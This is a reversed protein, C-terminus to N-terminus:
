KVELYKSLKKTEVDLQWPDCKELYHNIFTDKDTKLTSDDPFDNEYIYQVVYEVFAKNSIYFRQGKSCIIKTIIDFVKRPFKPLDRLLNDEIMFLHIPVNHNIVINHLNDVIWEEDFQNCQYWREFQSLVDKYKSESGKIKLLLWEWLKVFRNIIEQEIIQDPNDKDWMSFGIYNIFEIQKEYNNRENFLLKIIDSNLDFLGRGYCIALFKSVQSDEEKTKENNSYIQNKLVYIFKNKLILFTNNYIQSYNVFTAFTIEFIHRKGLNEPFLNDINNETITPLAYYIWPLMHAFIAYTEIYKPHKFLEDIVTAISDLPKDNNKNWILYLALGEVSKGHLSNIASTLYYGLSNAIKEEEAKKTLYKDETFCLKKLIEFAKNLYEEAFDKLNEKYRFAKSMLDAVAAKANQWDGDGDHFKSTNEFVKNQEIVWQSFEIVNKWQENSITKADRLGSLIYHIYTPEEIVKLKELGNLYKDPNSISDNRLNEALGIKHSNIDDSKWSNVFEVIEKITKESLEDTDIPSSILGTEMWFLMDPHNSYEIEEGKENYLITRYKDILYQSLYEKIPTLKHLRWINKKKESTLDLSDQEYYEGTPGKDIYELIIKQANVPLLDFKEQLLLYYEHHYIGSDFISKNTLYKILLDKNYKDSVRLLYLIVRIMTPSNSNELLTFIHQIINADDNNILEFSIDRIESVLIYLPENKKYADQSHKEIASRHIHETEYYNNIEDQSLGCIMDHAIISVYLNLLEEKSDSFITKVIKIIQEYGYGSNSIKIFPNFSTGVSDARKALKISLLNRCINLTLDKNINKLRELIQKLIDDDQWGFSNIKKLCENYIFMIETFEKNPLENALSISQQILWWDPTDNEKIESLIPQIFCMIKDPIEPAIKLLYPFAVWEKYEQGYDNTNTSYWLLNNDQEKLPEFWEPNELKAFFHSILNGNLNDLALKIQKQTPKKWSTM